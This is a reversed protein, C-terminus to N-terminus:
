NLGGLEKGHEIHVELSKKDVKINEFSLSFDSHNISIVQGGIKADDKYIRDTAHVGFCLDVGQYNIVTDNIHEHACSISQVGHEKAVNFFGLDSKPNPGGSFEDTSGMRLFAEGTKTAENAVYFEPTAIHMYVSSPLYNGDVKSYDAVRKFWDIQDQKIFDYGLDDFNYNHSELIYVQYKPEFVFGDGVTKHQVLNIVFNSRGTVDDDEINKFVVHKYTKSDLLRNIYMDNYYGQDDHNGYTFTWPINYSDIFSFLKKVVHKDAFTFSDGNLVILDANATTITTNLIKFHEEHNDSQSFHIDGLQLIRFDEDKERWELGAIYKKEDYHKKQGCGTLLCGILPLVILSKKNKM